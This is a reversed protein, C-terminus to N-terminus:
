FIQALSIRIVAAPIKPAKGHEEVRELVMFRYGTRRAISPSRIRCILMLTRCLENNLSITTNPVINTSEWILSRSLTAAQENERRTRASDREAFKREFPNEEFWDIFGHGSSGHSRWSGFAAM